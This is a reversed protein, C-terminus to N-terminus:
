KNRIHILKEEGAPSKEAVHAKLASWVLRAKVMVALVVPAAGKARDSM